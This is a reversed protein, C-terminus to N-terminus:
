FSGHSGGDGATTALAVQQLDSIARASANLAAALQGVSQFDVLQRAKVRADQATWQEPTMGVLRAISEAVAPTIAALTNEVDQATLVYPSPRSIRAM